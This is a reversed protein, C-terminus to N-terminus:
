SLKVAASTRCATFPLLIGVEKESISAPLGDIMIDRSQVMSAAKAESKRGPYSSPSRYEERARDM